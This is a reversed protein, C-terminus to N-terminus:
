NIKNMASVVGELAITELAQRTKKHLNDLEMKELLNFSKLVFRELPGGGQPRKASGGFISKPAIGIRVRVFDKTDIAKIISSVGNNGGGGRNQAIKVEGFPLDIDDHVVILDDKTAGLKKLLYSVTEGSNNMFTEPLVCEVQVKGVLGRTHLANSNKDKSFNAFNSQKAFYEVALRGVNHRTNVYKEGPNGLGVIYLM